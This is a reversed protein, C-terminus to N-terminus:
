FMYRIWRFLGTFGATWVLILLHIVTFMIVISLFWSLALGGNQSVYYMAYAIIFALLLIFIEIVWFRLNAAANIDANSVYYQIDPTSESIMIGDSLLVDIDKWSYYVDDYSGHTRMDGIVYRVKYYGPYFLDVCAEGNAYPALFWQGSDLKKQAPEVYNWALKDLISLQEDISKHGFWAYGTLYDITSYQAAPSDTSQMLIYGTERWEDTADANSYIKVCSQFSSNYVHYAGAFEIPQVCVSLSNNSTEKVEFPFTGPYNFDFYSEYRQNGANYSFSLSANQFTATFNAKLVASDIARSGNFVYIYIYHPNNNISTYAYSKMDVFVSCNNGCTSNYSESPKGENTGCSNADTCTREYVGKGAYCQNLSYDSCTWNARCIYCSYDSVATANTLTYKITRTNGSLDTANIEQAWIKVTSNDYAYGSENLHEELFLSSHVSFYEGNHNMLHSHTVGSINLLVYANLVGVNDSINATTKLSDNCVLVSQNNLVNTIVPLTTDNFSEHLYIENFAADQIGTLSFIRLPLNYGVGVLSNIPIFSTGTQIAADKYATSNVSTSNIYKVIRIMSLTSVNSNIMLNYTENDDTTHNFFVEVAIGNSLNVLSTNKISRLIDDNVSFNAMGAELITGQWNNSLSSDAGFVLNANNTIIDSASGTVSSDELNGDVWLTYNNATGQQTKRCVVTHVINDNLSTTGTLTTLTGKDFLCQAKEAGSYAIEYGDGTGTRKAAIFTVGGTNLSTNFKIGATFNNAGPNLKLSDAVIVHSSGNFYAGRFNNDQPFLVDELTGAINGNYQRSYGLIVGNQTMVDDFSWGEILYQAPFFLSGTVTNYNTASLNDNLGSTINIKITFQTNSASMVTGNVLQFSNTNPFIVTVAQTNYFIFSMILLVMAIKSISHLRKEHMWSANYSSIM